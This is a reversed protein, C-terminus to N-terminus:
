RRYGYPLYRNSSKKAYYHLGKRFAFGALLCLSLTFLPLYAGPLGMPPKGLLSLAPFWAMLGTPLLTMLSWQLAKPMGSLPYTSIRGTANIVYSSIEEAAVPAWFAVTAFLYSLAIIVALTLFLYFVLCAIWPLSAPLALRRAAVGLLAAGVLLNASGSFPMFGSTLLQVKLSLPQIHLHDLQGRGIIRSIHGNNSGCFIYYLGTVINSYALMFLVEDASMDGIGGFRLAMLLVGAATAVGAILDSLIGIAAYKSDRLLWLLDMKASIAFLRWRRLIFYKVGM